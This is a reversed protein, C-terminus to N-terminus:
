ETRQASQFSVEAAGHPLLTDAVNCKNVNFPCIGVRYDVIVHITNNFDEATSISSVALKKYTKFHKKLENSLNM